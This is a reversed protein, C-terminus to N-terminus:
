PELSGLLAATLKEVNQWAVTSVGPHDERAIQVLATELRELTERVVRLARRRPLKWSMGEAVLDAGTMTTVDDQGNIHMAFRPNIVPHHGHMAIDYAPALKAPGATPRLIAINKAHADTNGVALNFATLALLADPESGGAKLVEAIKALSPLARGRQFKREMDTTNIGLAQGADEQHVRRVSGHPLVIRDYRSIVLGRVAAFQHVRAQVTTLEIRRALDLCGAETDIVDFTPSGEPSGLKIIHTTPGRDTWRYWTDSRPDRYLSVKPQVGALSTPSTGAPNYYSERTLMDAIEAEDVKVREGGSPAPSGAAQFVLAGATDQGFRAVMAFLDDPDVGVAVARHTRQAGEPMLGNLFVTSVAVGASGGERKVPLLNGVVRSGTGFTAAAARGWVLDCRGDGVDHLQGVLDTGLWVDLPNRPPTM